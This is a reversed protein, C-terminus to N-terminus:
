TTEDMDEVKGEVDIDLGRADNVASTLAKFEPETLSSAVDDPVDELAAHVADAFVVRLEEQVDVGEQQAKQELEEQREAFAMIHTIREQLTMSRVKYLKGRLRVLPVQERVARDVDYVKGKM